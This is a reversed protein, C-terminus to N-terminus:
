RGTCRPRRVPPRRSRIQPQSRAAAMGAPCSGSSRPSPFVIPRLAATLPMGTGQLTLQARASGASTPTFLVTLRCSHRPGLTAHACRDSPIRFRRADPGSLSARTILVGASLPNTLVLAWRQPYGVGDGAGMPTFKAPLGLSRLASLSPAAASVPVDLPGQDSALELAGVAEGGAAPRFLVSVVCTEHPELVQGACGNQLVALGGADSGALTAAGLLIPKGGPDTVTVKRGSMQGPPVPPMTVASPSAAPRAGPCDRGIAEYCEAITQVVGFSPKPVVTPDAPPPDSVGGGLVGESGFQGGLNDRETVFVEAAGADVLTPVSAALYSAQAAEGGTYGPDSQYAADAPYGHETVWLPGTFGTAAFFQRWAALDSALSWLDGREHVNATDFAHAADAGPTAFVQGLWGAGAIGSIGGLLVDDSPDVAKIADHATRLMFAYQQPTGDFFAAADPENWVEWDRIVPDAHSVIETIVAAYAALDTTACRSADTTPASCDAIWTPVTMLDAVVRLRYTRALSMVEDLGYFDPGQSQSPFVLAPAVDLRIASAHMAAAQAFMATMFSPPDDLQLMSHAGIPNQAAAVGAGATLGAISTAALVALTAVLPRRREIGM